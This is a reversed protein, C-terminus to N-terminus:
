KEVRKVLVSIEGNEDSQIVQAKGFKVIFTSNLGVSMQSYSQSMGTSGTVYPVTRGLFLQLRGKEGDLATLSGSFKLTVPVESNNIKVSNKQITNLDFQGEATLIELFKSEAKPENWEVRIVYNVPDKVAEAPSNPPMPPRPPMLQAQCVIAAFLSVILLHLTKM